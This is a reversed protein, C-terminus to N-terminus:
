GNYDPQTTGDITAANQPGTSGVPGSFCTGGLPRPMKISASPITIEGRWNASLHSICLCVRRPCFRLSM